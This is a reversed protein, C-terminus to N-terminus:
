ICSFRLFNLQELLLNCDDRRQVLLYHLALLQFDLTRFLLFFDHFQALPDIFERGQRVHHLLHAFGQHLLVLIKVVEPSLELVKVLHLLQVSLLDSREFLEEGHLFRMHIAQLRLDRGQVAGNRPHVLLQLLPVLHNSSQLALDQSQVLLQLLQFRTLARMPCPLGLAVVM